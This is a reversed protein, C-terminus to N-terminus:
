VGNETLALGHSSYGTKSCTHVKCQHVLRSAARDRLPNIMAVV